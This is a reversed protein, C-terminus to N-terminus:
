DHKNSNVVEVHMANSISNRITDWLSITIAAAPASFAMRAGAGKFLGKVGGEKYVTKLGDSVNKYSYNIIYKQTSPNIQTSSSPSIASNTAVARQMQLRIKILDLPATLLSATAGAIGGACFALPLSPQSPDAGIFQSAKDKFMQYFMLYFASYPGFSILTAWYGRYIGRLLGEKQYVDRLIAFPGNYRTTINSNKLQQIQLREKMIDGPVWVVCSVAEAFLGSVFNITHNTETEPIGFRKYLAKKCFEYSSFYLTVGPISVLCTVGFGSYLNKLKQERLLTLMSIPTSFSQVQSKITDVPHLPIRTAIGSIVSATVIPIAERLGSSPDYSM